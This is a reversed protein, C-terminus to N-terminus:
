MLIKKKQLLPEGGHFIIVLNEIKLKEIGVRLFHCVDEIMKLSIYKPHKLFSKDKDNFFYCYSCNINCREVTKLVVELRNLKTLQYTFNFM